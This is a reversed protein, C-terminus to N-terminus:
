LLIKINKVLISKLDKFPESNSVFPSTTIARVREVTNPM